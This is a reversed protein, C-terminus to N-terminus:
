SVGILPLLQEAALGSLSGLVISLLFLAATILRNEKKNKNVRTLVLLGVGANAMLGSFLVPLGTVGNIYLNSILISASCNPILGILASLLVGAVPINWVASIKEEPLLLFAANILFTAILVLLAIKVTHKLASLFLNEECHCHEHECLDHIHREETKRKSLILDATYGVLVGAILKVALIVLILLAPMKASIFIPLMEDSTAIFVALLTGVTVTGSAYLSAAAGSFGCQPLIGFAAGVLPGAKRSRELRRNMKEGARHELYEMFLYTLYLIPLLKLTDIGADLLADLM